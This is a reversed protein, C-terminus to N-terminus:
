PAFGVLAGYRGALEWAMHDWLADLDDRPGQSVILTGHENWILRKSPGDGITAVRGVIHGLENTAHGTTKDLYLSRM